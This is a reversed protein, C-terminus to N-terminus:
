KLRIAKVPFEGIKNPLEYLELLGKNKMINIRAYTPGFSYGIGGLNITVLHKIGVFQMKTNQMKKLEDIIVDETIIKYPHGPKEEVSLEDKNIENLDGVFGM